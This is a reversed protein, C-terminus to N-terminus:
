TIMATATSVEPAPVLIRMDGFRIHNSVCM